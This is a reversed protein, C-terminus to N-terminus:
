RSRARRVIIWRQDEDFEVKVHDLRVTPLTATIAGCALLERYFRSNAHGPESREEWRLKAGFFADPDQPRDDGRTNWGYQRFEAL